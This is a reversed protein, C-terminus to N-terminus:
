RWLDELENVNDLIRLAGLKRLTAGRVRRAESGKPLVGWFPVHARRSSLADDVNDGLYLAKRPPLGDLLRLLGEPHPKLNKLDDMTVIRAFFRRVNLRDITYRLEERTRGTFIALWARRSWRELRRVPVLWRERQVNGPRGKEGWYFKMSLRKVEDYPANGGLSAIWDTALRWDDNYGSRNKWHHVQAYTVRRGTFFHVTDLITRHFSGRVDVLVGDADFIIMEPALKM